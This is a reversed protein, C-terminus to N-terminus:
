HSLLRLVHHVNVLIQAHQVHLQNVLQGVVSAVRAHVAPVVMTLSAPAEMVSNPSVRGVL